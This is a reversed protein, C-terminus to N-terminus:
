LVIGQSWIFHWESPDFQVVSESWWHRTTVFGLADSGLRVYMFLCFFANVNYVSSVLFLKLKFWVRELTDKKSM